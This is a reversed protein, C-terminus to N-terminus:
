SPRAYCLPRRPFARMNGYAIVIILPLELAFCIGRRALARGETPIFIHLAHHPFCNSSPTQVARTSTDSKARPAAGEFTCACASGAASASMTARAFLSTM